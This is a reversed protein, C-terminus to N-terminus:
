REEKYLSPTQRRRIFSLLSSFQGIREISCLLARSGSQWVALSAYEWVAVRGLQWIALSGLQWIAM